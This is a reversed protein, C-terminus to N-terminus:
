PSATSALVVRTSGPARREEEIGARVLRELVTLPRADEGQPSDEPM